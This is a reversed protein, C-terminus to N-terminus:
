RNEEFDQDKINAKEERVKASHTRNSYCYGCGGHCRCTRDFRKSKRYPKIHDKRNPYEKDFSMMIEKYATSAPNSGAYWQNVTLKMVM